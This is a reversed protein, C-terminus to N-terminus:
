ITRSFTPKDHRKARLYRDFVMAINRVFLRGHGVVELHDPEIRLFGHRVPGDDAALEGLEVRFYDGFDIGFRREIEARDLYFNCMLRAIVERRIRDDADLLYGREVPFRGADLDAYYPTLKKHNQAFSSRVDGIASVGAAVMDSGMAVTYGMFNRHLRRKALATALEDEPLAFHDMGIAAYGAELFMERAIVFLRLKDEVSPLDEARIYKQQARIWPVYAYSYLAVREPRLELAVRINDAFTDVRQKPLGYILDVNISRFGAKRCTEFLARTQSASQNRNVAAQVEPTFDQVGMSVRNFGLDRLLRIQEDTTVRPDVELAVEADDDLVFHDTVKRHLAAIEAPTLYTPTGGGWHYQSVRRRHPLHAALMDLERHLYGLYKSSVDRNRSIVVNCGCFWCRQECFPLHLYLSLPEDAAADAEALKAVYADHGYTPNFEIATPYSTYRPGAKDYKRLLAVTVPSESGM